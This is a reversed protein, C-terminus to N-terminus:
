RNFDCVIKWPIICSLAIRRAMKAEKEKRKKGLAKEAIWQIDEDDIGKEKDLVWQPFNEGREKTLSFLQRLPLSLIFNWFGQQDQTDYFIDFFPKLVRYSVSDMYKVVKGFFSDKDFTSPFPHDYSILQELIKNKAVEDDKHCELCHIMIDQGAKKQSCVSEAFDQNPTWKMFADRVRNDNLLEQHVDVRNWARNSFKFSPDLTKVFGDMLRANKELPKPYALFFDGNEFLSIVADCVDTYELLSSNWSIINVVSVDCKRIGEVIFNRVEDNRLLEKTCANSAAPKREALGKMFFERMGKDEILTPDAKFVEYDVQGQPLLTNIYIDRVEKRRAVSYNNSVCDMLSFRAKLNGQVGNKLIDLFVEYVDKYDLFSPNTELLETIKSEGKRLWDIFIRRVSDYEMLLPFEGVISIHHPKKEIGAAMAALMEKDDARERRNKASLFASDYGNELWILFLDHVPKCDLVFKNDGIVATDHGNRLEGVFANAIQDDKMFEDDLLEFGKGKRMCEGVADRVDPYKMIFKHALIDNFLKHSDDKNVTTFAKIFSQRFDDEDIFVQVDVCRFFLKLAFPHRESLRKGVAKRVDDYKLLELKKDVVLLAKSEKETEIIQSFYKCILKDDLLSTNYKLIDVDFSHKEDPMRFANIVTTYLPKNESITFNSSYNAVTTWDDHKWARNVFARCIEPVLLLRPVNKISDWDDSRDENKLRAM